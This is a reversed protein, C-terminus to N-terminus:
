PRRWIRMQLTQSHPLCTVSVEAPATKASCPPQRSPAGAARPCRWPSVSFEPCRRARPLRSCGPRAPGPRAPRLPCWALASRPNRRGTARCGPPSPLRRGTLGAAHLIGSPRRPMRDRIRRRIAASRCRAIHGDLKGPRNQSCQLLDCPKQSRRLLCSIRATVFFQDPAVFGPNIGTSYYYNPGMIM